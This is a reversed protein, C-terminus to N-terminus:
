PCHQAKQKKENRYANIEDQIEQTSIEVDPLAADLEEFLQDIMRDQIKKAIALRAKAPFTEFTKIFETQTMANSASM